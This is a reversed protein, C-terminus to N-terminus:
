AKGLAEGIASISGQLGGDTKIMRGDRNFWTFQRKAYRRSDRKIIRIMEERGSFGRLYDLVEKYGIGQMSMYSKDLGLDQLAEVEGVLGHLFMEDVRKEIREYLLERPPSIMLMVPAYRSEKQRSQVNKESITRGNVEYFEIARIVRKINNRHINKASVPDCKELLAFVADNGNEKAMAYLRERLVPDSKEEAFDVDDILSNIYLGTGGAVVALKGRKTIDAIVGHARGVFDAVSFDEWPEIIDIMHHPIGQMEEATPKATGINMKKYIQMSDASVVEGNYKKALQVALATKGSATPGAIVLVPIKKVDFRRKTM